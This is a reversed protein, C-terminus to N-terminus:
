PCKPLTQCSTMRWRGQHALASSPSEEHATHVINVHNGRWLKGASCRGYRKWGRNIYYVGNNECYFWNLLMALVVGYMCTPYISEHPSFAGETSTINSTTNTERRDRRQISQTARCLQITELLISWLKTSNLRFVGWVSYTINKINGYTPVIAFKGHERSKWPLWVQASSRQQVNPM